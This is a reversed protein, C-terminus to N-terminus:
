EGHRVLCCRFGGLWGHSRTVFRFVGADGDSTTAIRQHGLMHLRADGLTAHKIGDRWRGLAALNILLCERLPLEVNPAVLFDSDLTLALVGRLAPRRRERHSPLAAHVEGGALAQGIRHLLIIVRRALEGRHHQLHARARERLVRQIDVAPMIIKVRRQICAPRHHDRAIGLVCRVRGHNQALHVLQCQIGAHVNLVAHECRVRLPHIARRLCVQQPFKEARRIVDNLARGIRLAFEKARRPPAHRLHQVQLVGDEKPRHLILLMVHVAHHRTTIIEVFGDKAENLLAALFEGLKGPPTVPQDGLVFSLVRVGHKHRETTGRFVYLGTAIIQAFLAVGSNAGDM